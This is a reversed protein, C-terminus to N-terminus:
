VIHLFNRLSGIQNSADAALRAQHPKAVLFPTEVVVVPASAKKGATLADVIVNM